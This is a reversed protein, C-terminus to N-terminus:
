RAAAWEDAVTIIREAVSPLCAAVTRTPKESFTAMDEVEIAFIRVDDPMSYGCSAGIAFVDRLNIGHSDVLRPSVSRPLDNLRLEHCFGPPRSGTVISDVIMVRCHGAIDYLLDVGGSYNKKFAVTRRLRPAVAEVRDVALLGIADDCLLPNGLGVLANVICRSAARASTPPM